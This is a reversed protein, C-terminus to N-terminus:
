IFYYNIEMFATGDEFYDGEKMCYNRNSQLCGNAKELHARELGPLSKLFRLSTKKLTEFYGQLHPTNLEGVEHGFILYSMVQPREGGAGDPVRSLLTKLDSEEDVTPNNLTFCWRRSRIPM